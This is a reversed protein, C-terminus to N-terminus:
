HYHIFLLSLAFSDGKNLLSFHKKNKIKTDEWIYEFNKDKQICYETFKQNSLIHPIWPRIKYINLKKSIHLQLDKQFEEYWLEIKLYDFISKQLEYPLDNILTKIKKNKIENNKENLLDITQLPYLHIGYISNTRSTIIM